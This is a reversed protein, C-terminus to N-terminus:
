PKNHTPNNNGNNPPQHDHSENFIIPKKKLYCLKPKVVASHTVPQLGSGGSKCTISQRNCSGGNFMWKRGDPTRVWRKCCDVVGNVTASQCIGLRTTAANSASSLMAAAMLAAVTAGAGLGIVKTLSTM